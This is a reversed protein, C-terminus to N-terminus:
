LVNPAWSVKKLGKRSHLWQARNVIDNILSKVLKIDQKQKIQAEHFRDCATVRHKNSCQKLRKENRMIKEIFLKMKLLEKNSTPQYNKPKNLWKPLYKRQENTLM